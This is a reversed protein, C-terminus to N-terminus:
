INHSRFVDLFLFEIITRLLLRDIRLSYLLKAHLIKTTKTVYCM